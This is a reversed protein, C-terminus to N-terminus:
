QRQRRLNTNPATEITSLAERITAPKDTTISDVGLRALRRAVDIENVTWVHFECGANRVSKVFRRNIVSENAQTGLGVAGTERLSRLVNQKTPKWESEGEDQKYGTLWNCKYQPLEKRCARVVAKSFAIIVIQDDDLESEALQSKLVAVIEPGSKIEVFIRKGEPVLALVEKLTPIREGAFRDAKWRGVDLRRLESLTSEEVILEPEGPAVRKTSKDHVCAIQGDSTLYFDGEIADAGQEWALRFAALTNEPADHSAGRHAVILQANCSDTSTFAVVVFIIATHRICGTFRRSFM